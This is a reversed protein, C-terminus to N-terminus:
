DVFVFENTGVLARCLAQWARARSETQRDTEVAVWRRQYEEVFGISRATESGTPVRSFTSLFLVRVRDGDSLQDDALLQDALKKMQRAVLQSNMMFLAQSAVVTSQRTGSIVNPDAFDFASFVDYLASRVVPLYISRKNSVYIEPNVNTTSTVYKRNPIPLISGGVTRELEGSVQLLSDRIEEATLRRRNMRTLLVNEPDTPLPTSTEQRWTSSLLILRHLHKISWGSEVFEVALWDLLEPHTPREGLRGFNDPSRVLGAGFHWHWIRNVFVRATLPHDPSSLWKAFELRGSREKGVPLQNEESLIQPFRRPVETGQTLHSGRIHVRVNEITGDEVAMAMPFAPLTEKLKKEEGRLATLQEATASPFGTEISEPARFPGDTSNLLGVVKARDIELGVDPADAADADDAPADSGVPKAAFIMEYRAALNRLTETDSPKGTAMLWAALPSGATKSTELSEAASKLADAWQQVFGALPEYNSDLRPLTFGADEPAPAILLKDIHPFYQAHELRVLNKGAKLEYFGEVQWTQTDPYWSGTVGGAADKKVVSGNISLECPRASAAAYRIEFQYPGASSVEIDYEVFNPMPGINVLVGIGEGYGTTYKGANGRAFDEAEIIQIEPRTAADKEKGIPAATINQRRRLQEAALLYDGVHQTAVATVAAVAATRVRGLEATAANIQQQHADRVAVAQPSALPREHWQAVVSYSDMVKTSKFIGALSYYDATPIPDFKHDHCRACGLTLGMFGRGITDIQEDIIDMQLKVPDDEALMKPGIVLFGTATVGDLQEEVSGHELQDGAIQEAVFRDFPRDENFARVVYDRYRFANAHSLNEDLGNSDGYRVVDLWHRGWREGYHPSALLRDVVRAFAGASDDALFTAVEDTSPLLGTMSLTARRILTRRAARRSPTQGADEIRRLVFADIPTAVFDVDRVMPVAPRRPKQFAWFSKQEDTFEVKVSDAVAAPISVPKSNPWHAGDKIWRAVVSIEANSLKSKPPMKILEGHRLTRVLLSEEPKGPIIAPGRLGGKLLGALSEMNLGSEPEDSSHCDLCREILLPRVSKEFFTALESKDDQACLPVQISGLLVPLLCSYVFRSWM